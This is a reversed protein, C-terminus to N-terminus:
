SRLNNAIQMMQDQITIAKSALAYSRQADMMGTMTTALDVDSGELAGQVIRTGAVARIGGSAATPAFLNNGIPNLATPAAVTVVAIQGLQQRGATVVGTPSIKITRPDTGQPVRIPPELRDGNPDVLEGSADASFSGARTLALQGSATRVQFYGPGELAMDFPEGTQQLPGEQFSRGLNTTAVGAGTRVGSGGDAQYVLDHFGVRVSQYGTTDVNAVDNALSDLRQQQAEMGAAATYLGELM